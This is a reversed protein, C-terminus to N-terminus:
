HKDFVPTLCPFVFWVEVLSKIVWLVTFIIKRGNWEVTSIINIKGQKRRSPNSLALPLVAVFNIMQTWRSEDAVSVSICRLKYPLLVFVATLFGAYTNTLVLGDTSLMATQTRAHKNKCRDAPDGATFSAPSCLLSSFTESFLHVVDAISSRDLLHKWSPFVVRHKFWPWLACTCRARGVDPSKVRRERRKM